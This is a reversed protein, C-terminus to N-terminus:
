TGRMKWGEKHLIRPPWTHRWGEKDRKLKSSLGEKKEIAKTNETLADVENNYESVETNDKIHSCTHLVHKM